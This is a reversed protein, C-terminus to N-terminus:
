MLSTSTGGMQLEQVVLPLNKGLAEFPFAASSDNFKSTGM